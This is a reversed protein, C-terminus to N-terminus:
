DEHQVEASICEALRALCAFATDIKAEPTGSEIDGQRHDTWFKEAIDISHLLERLEPISMDLGSRIIRM